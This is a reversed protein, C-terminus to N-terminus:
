AAVAVLAATTEICAGMTRMRGVAPSETM